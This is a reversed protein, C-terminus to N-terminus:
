TTATVDHLLCVGQRHRWLVPCHRLHCPLRGGQTDQGHVGPLSSVGHLWQGVEAAPGPVRGM